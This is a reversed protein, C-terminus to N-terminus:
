AGNAVHILTHQKQIDTQVSTINDANPQVNFLLLNGDHFITVLQGCRTFFHYMVPKMGINSVHSLFVCTTLKKCCDHM